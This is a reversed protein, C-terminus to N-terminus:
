KEQFSDVVAKFLKDKLQQSEPLDQYKCFCPHTKKTEDKEEGYCWGDEMKEKLWNMHSMEPTIDSNDLHFIAGNRASGKQWEPAESWSKQSRDGLSECYARNVEHATRAVQEILKNFEENM